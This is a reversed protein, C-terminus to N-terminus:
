ENHTAIVLFRACDNNVLRARCCCYEMTRL